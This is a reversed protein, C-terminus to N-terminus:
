DQGEIQSSRRYPAYRIEKEQKKYLYLVEGIISYTHNDYLPESEGDVTLYGSAGIKKNNFLRIYEVLHGDAVARLVKEVPFDSWYTDTVHFGVGAELDIYNTQTDIYMKVQAQNAEKPSISICTHEHHNRKSVIISSQYDDIFSQIHDYRNRFPKM